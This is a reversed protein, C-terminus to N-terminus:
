WCLLREARGRGAARSAGVRSQKEVNVAKFGKHLSDYLTQEETVLKESLLGRPENTTVFPM